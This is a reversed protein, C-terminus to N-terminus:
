NRQTTVRGKAGPALGPMCYTNLMQQSISQIFQVWQEGTARM